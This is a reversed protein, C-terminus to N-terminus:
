QPLTFWFRSGLGETSEVGVTGGHLEIIHKVISLGLGTGGMERSRAKDVRYFREFIRPLDKPPIGVGSDEIFVKIKGGAEQASIRITGKEKNFKIANDMLNTFVQGIRERDASVRIGAPLDNRVEVKMRKIQSAFGSVVAELQERLDLIEKKLSIEKSELHSLSLLDSVLSDLRETHDQIIQLFRRNNDKDELAGELLTEVFGKISTLPTKLEHSVNAIFDQRMRELRKIGTIDHIVSLSGNISNGYFIPIANIQFVGQVPYVLTIEKSLPSGTELVATIMDAIENNRISELFTRGEVDQRTVQFIREIAHNISVIRGERDTLLVGEIMSNFIANLQQGQSSATRIKEEIDHAMKNLTDALEGIEDKSDHYIRHTFDGASFRRSVHIIKNIPKIIGSTLLSGLVFALVLAFVISFIISNRINGFMREVNVLPMALRIVGNIGGRGTIPMAIYLMKMKLTSSYRIRDGTLGELALRVEPRDAHNDMDLVEESSRESDILVKGDAGIITIRNKTRLSLDRILIELGPIDWASAPTDPFQAEILSAQNALSTKLDHLADEELNKDLFYAVLAFTFVVVFVYSFILRLKLSRIKTKM